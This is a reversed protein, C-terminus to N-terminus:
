KEYAKILRIAEARLKRIEAMANEERDPYNNVMKKYNSIRREIRDLEKLLDLEKKYFEKVAGQEDNRAADDYPKLTKQFENIINVDRVDGYTELEGYRGDKSGTKMLYGSQPDEALREMEEVIRRKEEYVSGDVVAMEDFNKATKADDKLKYLENLRKKGSNFIDIRLAEGRAVMGDYLEQAEKDGRKISARLDKEIKADREVEEYYFQYAKEWDRRTREESAKEEYKTMSTFFGNAIPINRFEAFEEDGFAWRMTKQAENVFTYLGGLYSEAYHEIASPNAVNIVGGGFLEDMANRGYHEGGTIFKSIAVYGPATSRKGRKYEPLHENFDSRNHIKSGAFNANRNVEVFPKIADPALNLWLTEGLDDAPAWGEMPNLPLVQAFTNVIDMGVNDYETHGMIYSTLLEGLGFAVRSEHALPIKIVGNGVPLCINGRRAYDTMNFYNGMVEDDDDDGRLVAALMGFLVPATAGMIFETAYVKAMKELAKITLAVRQVAAQIAPNLFMFLKKAELQGYAGSGKRNFNVSVEKADNISKLVSIGNERSTMYAAFRCTNEVSRNVVEVGEAMAKLGNKSLKTIDNKRVFEKMKKDWEEISIMETYGTEGGNELFEKFYRHMPNKEDLKGKKYRNYLGHIKPLVATVNKDFEAMMKAGHMAYYAVSSSQVDRILNRAVFSPSYGTVMKARWQNVTNIGEFVVNSDQELLLGNIANALRPSGNVYVIYEKGNRKVAVAHQNKQWNEAPRYQLSLGSKQKMAEGKAELEKMEAEFRSMEENIQAPSMEENINLYRPEWENGNKVYWAENVTLLPTNYMLALNLLRQKLRNKSGFVIASNAMNLMTAFIDAAESKRGHAAKVVSNLVSKKESVYDFLEDATTESFGRLPVYFQYMGKLEEYREKSSLGSEYDERLAFGTMGNILEWFRDANVDKSGDLAEEVMEVYELAKSRIASYKAKGEADFIATLGSFDSIKAGYKGALEDLANQQEKWPMGNKLIANREEIYKGYVEKNFVRKGDVFETLAKKVAMERNREFGHKANAYRELAKQDLMEGNSLKLGSVAKLFKMFPQVYKNDFVEMKNRNISPIHNAYDYINASDVIERGTEKAIEEMAVKMARIGDIWGEKIKNWRGEVRNNYREGVGGTNVKRFMVGKNGTNTKAEMAIDNIRAIPGRQLRNYNKWLMYRIENDSVEINVIRRIADRVWQKIAEWTDNYGDFGREALEAIYEETCERITMVRGNRISAFFKNDIVKKMEPSAMKYVNDLLEDFGGGLMERLGKHGVVEHLVTEVADETSVCNDMVVVVEGTNADYWGKSDKRDEPLTSSDEIITITSNLKQALAKVAERTIASETRRTEEATRGTEQANGGTNGANRMEVMQTGDPKRERAKDGRPFGGAWSENGRGTGEKGNDGDKIYNITTKINEVVKLWEMSIGDKPNFRGELLSPKLFALDGVMRVIYEEAQEHEDYGDKALEDRYLQENEGAVAKFMLEVEESNFLKQIAMHANEHWLYAKIEKPSANTDFIIVKDYKPSYAASTGNNYLQVLEDIDGQEFEWAELLERLDEIGDALIVRAGGYNKEYFENVADITEDPIRTLINDEAVMNNLAPNYEGVKLEYQKAVDKIREVVNKYEGPNALNQYSRWLIYRLENDNMEYDLKIGVKALMNVFGSKIREWLTPDMKEFYTEEALSALYEETAVKTNGNYRQALTEIRAKVENDVNNFINDLFTDFNEGFMERLGHHAVAEHLVTQVADTISANNPIVVVIRKTSPEYWGKAKAKKGTLGETSELVEINLNLKGALEQVKNAMKVRQRAVYERMKKGTYRPRGLAKSYPDSDMVVERDAISGEGERYDNAMEANLANIQEDSRYLTNDDEDVAKNESKVPRIKYFGGKNEAKREKIYTSVLDGQEKTKAESEERFKQTLEEQFEKLNDIKEQIAAIDNQSQQTQRVIDDVNVGKKILNQKEEEIENEISTLQAEEREARQVWYEDGKKAWERYMKITNKQSELKSVLKNYAEYKRMVFSLDAEIQTKEQQLKAREQVTVIEARVAPDTILATKLEATDIDSVDLSEAGSKMAENYLGQKLQLRQLMFVDVSDNTLMYNIRINEWKNGQRWGRGEIQRLQTFNWPLSLIYMDTTNGQLNLGEKIAPSGVVVKVEGNNFATQINVRENNSTAGTIIRVEGPKLGSEKVLYDRILPFYEVGVESYIIQGADPRDKINQEIMKITADIKPSNKVFEKHNKPQMGLLSTAYPSFAAARAHGIGQLVTDNDSLLEQAAAMAETTLENQAIKYEKNLREPRVLEPNDEEGKIDIFESLLQQFLGNNRFRRVNTKQTPRGNAGIELENDAEMFTAFFQDVNFFGKRELMDNGVLSLISYYELPKNTFPTASLLLVNRGNNEEQIYQAALWTKLGLDSTRQSQSRFDSAVSKDLRVKSVIHNANHVEDVTLWDFGFDEFMYSSKTGRKMKGKLENKKEIDKQIDRESQHKNLDETIYSFKSALHNYTGDSFSMAKLGEYTIITFEGDNVKFDTLDYGAGLNGLTNVTASPLVEGITEVWQKLINDNPVVILPKKAFGRTMAEHMALIGSLTKGFGVEHALVGVGKVTMRGIGALQVSTLKLPKGKFDRNITSFMPVKSYDPRYTSNYERNFAAVVQKKANDSLEENLFKNFLDNAARKRRERVLQNRQKDTGHVQENNVYGIVEWASSSGFAQYPLKRCFDVFMDKLSVREGDTLINLNKVFATNPSITIEDLSKQKPLVSELLAKQKEYQEVGYKEVIYRKDQELLALKSYIDGEAYYFDHVASGGIYNAYRKHKTPNSLTGEYDTDAFAEVEGESFEHTFQSSTPVTEAGRNLEVKYKDQKGSLKTAPKNDAKESNQADKVVDVAKETSGTEDIASEIDNLADNSKEIDLLDAVQEANEKKIAEIAADIDGEVFEETRGYRGTRQKVEGLVREPFQEFYPVHETIPVSSDKKLIIIDTGVQTAEFAGSPLRYAREITYGGFKTHRDIWSSPLVMALVGGENLVDLSRKVFYDEYRAIKSEEGLGKYLGRHSGYPPNGIVLSYKQPLPKKNGNEDIFETEFSRLNVDVDPYLIKAIRAATENIEFAVVESTPINNVAQIFNGIGVSPELVRIPTSSNFYPAILLNVADVIKGDTYYEDLIGRGKKAIGGSEYGRVIAKIDDTVEGTIVVKGDIIDTVSSVITEIEENTYNRNVDYQPGNGLESSGIGANRRKRKSDRATDQVSVGAGLQETDPLEKRGLQTGSNDAATNEEGDNNENLNNVPTQQSPVSSNGSEGVNERTDEVYLDDVKVDQMNELYVRTIEPKTFRAGSTQEGRHVLMLIRHKEGKYYVAPNGELDEQTVKRLKKGEASERKKPAKVAEVDKAVEAERTVTEATAMTDVAQKDFNAVDFTKVEEYPTMDKTFGAEEIEPLERAGNYFAKLYPRIADGLDAIMGKAFDAFKRAGKEIHYVAMETGIALIEPDVGINMQGKLKKKMREKLENYREDTVLKNGSPNTTQEVHDSLKAVGSQGPANGDEAVSEDNVTNVQRTEGQTLANDGGGRVDGPVATGEYGEGVVESPTTTVFQEGQLLEGGRGFDKREGTTDYEYNEALNNYYETEDFEKRREEIDELLSETYDLYNEYSDFGMGEAWVDAMEREQQSLEAERLARSRKIYGKPNGNSLINIIMDRVDQEDGTFGLGLLEDNYNAVISEAAQEITIGGKGKGAIYGVLQRQEGNSLGTERKFSEPTIKPMVSAVFEEVTEPMEPAAKKKSVVKRVPQMENTVQPTVEEVPASEVVPATEAIPQAVNEAQAAARREKVSAIEEWKALEAKAKEINAIRENEAAIKEAITAGGKAKAKEAKELAKKKDEIMGSVAVMAIEENGGAEEVVGDWALGSEVQEYMPSGQADKPIMELASKPVEAVAEAPVAGVEARINNLEETTVKTEVGDYKIRSMEDGEELVEITHVGESDEVEFLLGSERKKKEDAVAEAGDFQARWEADIKERADNKMAEADQTMVVGPFGESPVQRRSGDPMTVYLAESSANVDVMGDDTLLVTGGTIYVLEGDLYTSYVVGNNARGDIEADSARYQEDRTDQFRDQVGEFRAKAARYEDIAQVISEDGNALEETSINAIFADVDEGNDLGLAVRVNEEAQKLEDSVEVAAEGTPEQEYAEQYAVEIGPASEERKTSGINYGRMIMMRKYYDLLVPANKDDVRKINEFLVKAVDENSAENLAERIETWKDGFAVEANGEAKNLARQNKFYGVSGITGPIARMTGVTLFMGGIIDAQTQLDYLQKFENTDVLLGNLIINAEEELVEPLVGNIGFQKMVTTAGKMLDSGKAAALAKSIHKAGIKDLGKAISIGGDLHNGLKESYMELVSSMEGKYVAALWGDKDEFRYNGDAGKTLRGAKRGAINAMTSGAGATNAILVSEILDDAVVGTMRKIKQKVSAKAADTATKTGFKSVGGFGGTAAMQIMFPVSHGFINGARYMFGRDATEQLQNNAFTADLLDEDTKSNVGNESVNLLARADQAGSLGMTYFGPNRVTADAVGQWFGPKEGAIRRDLERIAETLSNSTANLKIMEEDAIESLANGTIPAMGFQFAGTNSSLGKRREAAKKNVEDLVGELREKEKINYAKEIEKASKGISKAYEERKDKDASFYNKMEGVSVGDYVVADDVAEAAKLYSDFSGEPTYYRDGKKVVDQRGATIGQEDRLQGFNYKREDLGRQIRQAYESETMQLPTKERRTFVPAVVDQPADDVLPEETPKMPVMTSEEGKPLGLDVEMYNVQEEPESDVAVAPAVINSFEDYDKGVNYGLSQATEFAWKRSDENNVLLSDFEAVDKGVNYGEATLNDYLWKTSENNSM